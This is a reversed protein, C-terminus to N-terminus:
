FSGRVGFTYRAGPQQVLLLQNAFRGHKHVSEQTLNVGELFLTMHENLAYSASMDIQKYPSVITPEGGQIQTLSQLFGDRQNWALRIQIPDFEYYMILNQSNSLGTLAFKQSIDNSDLTANSDVFTANTLLGFGSLFDYQFALEWGKVTATESNVPQTLEFIAIEDDVDPASPNTGTSPDTVQNITIKMTQSVIFNDVKKRFYNLSMYSSPAFYWELALDFNDSEFAKLAPNGSSVRLDGGQRTTNITRSPSMQSITPRTISRSLALRASVEDALEWRATFSPLWHQYTLQQMIPRPTSYVQGLETQDLIALALLDAEIGEVTTRTHEFRVGSNISLDRRFLQSSFSFDLYAANVNEALTFSSDRKVANFNVDSISELFAFIQEGNHRLWIHPVNQNGSIGALFDDGADFVQQFEDPLDPESFYGCFACHVFDSENDWREIQKSQQSLMVGFSVSTLHQWDTEWSADSRFQDLDDRLNWGRRLMVHAKGNAPDLYDSVGAMQGEANIISPEAAAFGSISPLINNATHDFHSRNLYGVLSLANAAGQTDNISAASLSADFSLSLSATAQWDFNLGLAQMNSPRDFTRSHFDTAHGINQSFEIVTGAEDTVVDELNSSTFWHGMSTSQTKVNFSSSLYDLSLKTDQSPRYQLVLTGGTRTREDFRVRQDYNRPVFINDSNTTLQALPINTNLLWGDTQAENIKAKHQQQSLSLLWGFQENSHSILVTGQPTIQESNSDLMAKVSGAVKFGRQSFPRATEINITSGIGGSQTAASFTKSVRVGSVLESALTDFSFERGQNDTALQRGNTLVTNFQPGFGRVTVFQGEGESRDISVGSLRQLSEALNLDPFKGIDEAKIADVVEHSNQKIDVARQASARMGKVLILEYDSDEFQPYTMLSESEDTFLEIVKAFLSKQQEAQYDELSKIVLSGNNSFEAILGTDSLLLTIAQSPCYQGNLANAVSTKVKNFPFVVTIDAQKAFEILAEDATKADIAFNVSCAQTSDALTIPQGFSDPVICLLGSILLWSQASFTPRM